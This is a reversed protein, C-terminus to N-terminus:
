PRAPFGMEEIQVHWAEEFADALVLVDDRVFSASSGWWIAFNATEVVNPLDTYINRVLKGDREPPATALPLSPYQNASWLASTACPLGLEPHPSAYAALILVFAIM